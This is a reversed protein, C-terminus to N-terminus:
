FLITLDWLPVHEKVDQLSNWVHAVWSAIGIPHVFCQVSMELEAASIYALLVELSRQVM